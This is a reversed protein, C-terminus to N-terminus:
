THTGSGGHWFAVQLDLGAAMVYTQLSSSFDPLYLRSTPHLEANERVVSDLFCYVGICQVIFNDFRFLDLYFKTSKIGLLNTLFDGLKM